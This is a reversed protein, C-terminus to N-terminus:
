YWEATEIIVGEGYYLSQVMIKRTKRNKEIGICGTEKPKFNYENNVNGLCIVLLNSNLLYNFPSLLLKVIQLMGIKLLTKVIGVIKNRKWIRNIKRVERLPILEKLSGVRYFGVLGGSSIPVPYGIKKFLNYFNILLKKFELLYSMKIEKKCKSIERLLEHTGIETEKPLLYRGNKTVTAGYFMIGRVAGHKKVSKIAYNLINKIEKENIGKAITTSIFTLIREAELNKLALIKLLNENKNGRLTETVKPDFGDLTIIVQKLGAKKLKKVYSIDALKLGNTYLIPYNGSKRILKIIEPLDERITPEGGMLVIRKGKGVKRLVSKIEDISLDFERSVFPGSNMFCIKCFSNCRQTIYLNITSVRKRIIKWDNRTPVFYFEKSSFYSDEYYNELSYRSKSAQLRKECFSKQLSERM